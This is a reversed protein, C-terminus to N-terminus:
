KGFRERETWSQLILPKGPSVLTMSWSQVRGETVKYLVVRVRVYAMVLAHFYLPVQYFKVINLVSAIDMSVPIVAEGKKNVGSGGRKLLAETDIRVYKIFIRFSHHGSILYKIL